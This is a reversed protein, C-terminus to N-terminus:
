PAVDAIQRRTAQVAAADELLQLELRFEVEGEASLRPLRGAAREVSRNYPFGTGPELGTVYGDADTDTNKWLTFCPLSDVAFRMAVGQDAAANHLMVTAM